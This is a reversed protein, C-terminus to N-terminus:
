PLPLTECTPLYVRVSQQESGSFVDFVMWQPDPAVQWGKILSLDILCYTGQQRQTICVPGQWLDPKVAQNPGFVQVRYAAVDQQSYSDDVGCNMETACAVTGLLCLLGSLSVAVCRMM